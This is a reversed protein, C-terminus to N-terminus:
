NGAVILKNVVTLDKGSVTLYYIGPLVKSLQITSENVGARLVITKRLVIKGELSRVAIEAVQESNSVQSLVFRGSSPNPSIRSIADKIASVSVIKSLMYNGDVDNQKIRFYLTNRADTSYDFSYTNAASNGHKYTVTGIDSFDIGNSSAQVNYDVVDAENEVRWSVNVRGNIREAAISIFHVPTIINNVVVTAQISGQSCGTLKDATINLQYTGANNFTSTTLNFNSSSLSYQSKAFSSGTSNTVSYWAGSTVNSIAYTVTQGTNITSSLPSASPNLPPSCTVSATSACSASEANGTSQATV